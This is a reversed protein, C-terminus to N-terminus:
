TRNTGNEYREWECEGEHLKYCRPCMRDRISKRLPANLLTQTLREIREERTLEKFPKQENM